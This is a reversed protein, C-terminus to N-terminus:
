DDVVVFWFLLLLLLSGLVTSREQFETTLQAALGFDTLKCNGDGAVLVNASKIDRHIRNTHDPTTPRPNTTNPITTTTNHLPSPIKRIYVIASLVQKV